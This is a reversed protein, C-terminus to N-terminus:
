KRLAGLCAQALVEASNEDFTLELRSVWRILVRFAAQYDLREVIALVAYKFLNDITLDPLENEAEGDPYLWYKLTPHPRGDPLPKIPLHKFGCLEWLETTEKDTVKEIKTM